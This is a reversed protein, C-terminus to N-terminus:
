VKTTATNRRHFNTTAPYTTIDTGEESVSPFYKFVRKCLARRYPLVYYFTLLPNIFATFSGLTNLLYEAYLSSHYYAVPIRQISTNSTIVKTIKRKYYLAIFPASYVGLSISIQSITGGVGKTNSFGILSNNTYDYNPHLARTEAEVIAFDSETFLQFILMSTPLLSFIAITKKHSRANKVHVQLLRYRYYFSLLISFSAAVVSAQVLAFMFFCTNPGFHKCPGYCFVALTSKNAVPRCQALFTSASVLIECIATNLLYYQMDKLLASRTTKMIFLLLINTILSLTISIPYYARYILQLKMEEIMM